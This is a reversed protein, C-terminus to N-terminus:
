LSRVEATSKGFRTVLAGSELLKYFLLEFILYPAGKKLLVFSVRVSRKFICILQFWLVITVHYHIGSRSLHRLWVTSIAKCFLRFSYLWTIVVVMEVRTGLVWQLFLRAFRLFLRHCSSFSTDPHRRSAQMTAYFLQKLGLNKM